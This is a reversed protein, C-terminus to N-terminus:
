ERAPGEAPPALLEAARSGIRRVWGETEADSNLRFAFLTQEAFEELAKVRECQTVLEADLAAAVDRQAASAQQELDLQKQLRDREATLTAIADRVTAAIAEELAGGVSAVVDLTAGTAIAESM